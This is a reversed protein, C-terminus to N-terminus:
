EAGAEHLRINLTDEINQNLKPTVRSRGKRGPVVGEKM